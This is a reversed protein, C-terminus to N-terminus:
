LAEVANLFGSILEDINVTGALKQVPREYYFHLIKQALDDPDHPRCLWTSEAGNPVIDEIGQGECAIFPTGCCWAESYVCGFGEFVSPLVFLDLSRYFDPLSAHDISSIIEVPLMKEAILKQCDALMTGSHHVGVLKVELGFIRGRIKEVARLLTIQDKLDRFVAVCGIIFKSQNKGTGDKVEAGSNDSRELHFVEQNVGNHLVYAPRVRASRFCRLDNMARKMPAYVNFVTQRPAEEVVKAVNRSIAILLDMKEVLSRHYLFYSARKIWAFHGAGFLMGYPDADHFQLLAKIRSNKRKLAYVYTAAPVLHGHAIAIDEVAIGARELAKFMKRVNGRNMLPPCLWGGSMHYRFGIVRVGRFEYEGDRDPRLM